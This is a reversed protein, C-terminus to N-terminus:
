IERLNLTLFKNKDFNLILECFRIRGLSINANLIELFSQIGRKKNM